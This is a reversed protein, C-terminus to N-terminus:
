YRARRPGHRRLIHAYGGANALLVALGLGIQVPRTLGEPYVLPVLYRDLFSSDYGASGAQQRLAVELFTLPCTWGALEVFAGWAVAPLHAWALRPWRWVLLVGGAVFLVFALHVVLTLDALLASM